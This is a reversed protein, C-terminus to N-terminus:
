FPINARGQNFSQVPEDWQLNRKECTRGNDWTDCDHGQVKLSAKTACNEDVENAEIGSKQATAASTM